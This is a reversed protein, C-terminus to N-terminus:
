ECGLGFEALLLLLDSTGVEGDEDGDMLLCPDDHWFCSGDDLNFAVSFNDATVETCGSFICTGNDLNALEWYNDAGPYTCGPLMGSSVNVEIFQVWISASAPVANGFVNFYPQLTLEVPFIGPELAIGSWNFCIQSSGAVTDSETTVELASPLEGWELTYFAVPYQYGSASDVVTGPTNLVWEFTSFIGLEVTTAQEPYWGSSFFEWDPHGAFECTPLMYYCSDGPCGAAANYNLADPDMCGSLLVDLNVEETWTCGIENSISVEWIGAELSAVTDGNCLNNGNPDTWHFSECSFDLLPPSYNLYTEQIEESFYVTWDFVYGDDVAWSDCAEFTWEGEVPCGNLQSWDGSAEYVGSPLTGGANESWTGNTATPSWYYDWGLGAGGGGNDIPIGLFTGGGGQAQLVMSQGNPCILSITLDGMFSHEMNVFVSAIDVNADEITGPDNTFFEIERDFCMMADPIFMMGGMPQPDPYPFYGEQVYTNPLWFEGECVEPNSNLFGFDPAAAVEILDPLFIFQNCTDEGYLVLSLGVSHFGAEAITFEGSLSSQNTDLEDDLYWGMVEVGFENPNDLIFAMEFPIGQCVQGGNGVEVSANVLICSGDDITAAWNFNCALYQTCGPVDYLDCVGNGDEDICTGDCNYGEAPIGELTFALTDSCGAEDFAVITHDGISLSDFTTSTSDWADGDVSFTVTGQAGSASLTVAGDDFFSACNPEVVSDVSLELTCPYWCPAEVNAAPNFNTATEDMCGIVDPPLHIIPLSIAVQENEVDGDIFVYLNLEGSIEGSTTLQALLVKLDSGAAAYETDSLVFWGSGNPTNLILSGEGSNFEEWADDMGVASVGYGTFVDEPELGITLWSDFESSPFYSFFIVNINEGLNDGVSHHFFGTPSSIVLPAASDGFVYSVQDAVNTFEAYLRYTKMGVLEDIGTTDHDVIEVLQVGTLQSSGIQSLILCILVAMTRLANVVSFHRWDVLAALLVTIRM